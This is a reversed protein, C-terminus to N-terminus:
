DTLRIARTLAADAQNTYKQFAAYDKVPIRGARTSVDRVLHLAGDKTMDQVEYSSLEVDDESRAVQAKM